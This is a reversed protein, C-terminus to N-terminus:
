REYQINRYYERNYDRIYRVYEQINEKILEDARLIRDNLENKKGQQAMTLEGDGSFFDSWNKESKSKKYELEHLWQNNKSQQVFLEQLGAKTKEGTQQYYLKLEGTEKVVREYNRAVTEDWDLLQQINPASQATVGTVVFAYLVLAISMTKILNM